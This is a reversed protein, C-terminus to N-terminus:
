ICQKEEMSISQNAKAVLISLFVQENKKINEKNLKYTKIFQQKKEISLSPYNVRFNIYNENISQIMEFEKIDETQPLKNLFAYM